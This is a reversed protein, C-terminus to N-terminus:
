RRWGRLPALAGARLGSAMHVLHAIDCVFADQGAPASITVGFPLGGDAFVTPVAVGCLDLLNMHNTYRGLNTNLAIPDAELESITYIMGATPTVLVQAGAKKMAAVSQAKLERLKYAAREALSSPELTLRLQREEFSL